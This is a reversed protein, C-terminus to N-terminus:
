SFWVQCAAYVALVAILSDIRDFVGGHGPLLNSSDKVGAARKFWSELLDGCISVVALLMAIWMSSWLGSGFSFGSGSHLWAAYLAVCVLAGLAGEWSKKPSIVPALRHQGFARGVFYASVDALWVLVMVALLDAADSGDPRLGILALWFPLMLMWGLLMGRGNAKLTWKRYLWLPVACLWFMLVALWFLHALWGTALGEDNVAYLLVGLVVSAALYRRAQQGNLACIRAYEWLAILTILGGFLAWLGNGAYFLMGVMLPLLVLATLIRQKLM